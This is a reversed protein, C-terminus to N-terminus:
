NGRAYKACGAFVRVAFGFDILPVLFGLGGSKRILLLDVVGLLALSLGALVGAPVSPRAVQWGGFVVCAGIVLLAVPLMGPKAEGVFLLSLLGLMIVSGGLGRFAKATGGDTKVCADAHRDFGCSPCVVAQEALPHHCRPCLSPHPVPRKTAVALPAHPKPAPQAPDPESGPRILSVSPGGKGQFRHDRCFLVEQGCFPCSRRTGAWNDEAVMSKACNVCVHKFSMAGVEQRM